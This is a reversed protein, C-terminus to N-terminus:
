KYLPIAELNDPEAFREAEPARITERQRMWFRPALSRIVDPGLIWAPPWLCGDEIKRLWPGPYISSLLVFLKRFFKSTTMKTAQTYRLYGLYEAERDHVVTHGPSRALKVDNADAIACPLAKPCPIFSM